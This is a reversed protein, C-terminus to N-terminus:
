RQVAKACVTDEKRIFGHGQHSRVFGLNSTVSNRSFSSKRGHASIVVALVSLDNFFLTVIVVKGVALVLRQLL